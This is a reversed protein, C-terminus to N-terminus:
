GYIYFSVDRVGHDHILSDNGFTIFRYVDGNLSTLGTFSLKEYRSRTKLITFHGYLDELKGRVPGRHPPVLNWFIITCIGDWYNYRDIVTPMKQWPCQFRSLILSVWWILYQNYVVSRVMCYAKWRVSWRDWIGFSTDFTLIPLNFLAKPKKGLTLPEIQQPLNPSHSRKWKSDM